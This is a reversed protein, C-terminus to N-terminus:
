PVLGPLVAVPPKFGGAVAAVAEGGAIALYGGVAGGICAPLSWRGLPWNWCPIRLKGKKVQVPPSLAAPAPPVPPAV